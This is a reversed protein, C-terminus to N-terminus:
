TAILVKFVRGKRAELYPVYILWLLRRDPFYSSQKIGVCCNKHSYSAWLIISSEMASASLPGRLESLLNWNKQKTIKKTDLDGSPWTAATRFVSLQRLIWTKNGSRGITASLHKDSFENKIAKRRYRLSHFLLSKLFLAWLYRPNQSELPYWIKLIIPKACVGM